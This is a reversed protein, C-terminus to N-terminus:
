GTSPTTQPVTALPPGEVTVLNARRRPVCFLALSLLLCLPLATNLPPDALMLLYPIPTLILAMTIRLPRASDRILAFAPLLVVADAMGSHFSTLLGCILCAALVFEFSEGTWAIWLCSLTVAAILAWELSQAAGLAATMGHLNPMLMVAPNIEPQRLADVYRRLSDPGAVILGLVALGAGGCIGGYLIRWRRKAILALPLFVFLHVKIACLSLVLGAGFDRKRRALLVAAGVFLLLLPTDQGGCIALVLPVSVAAYFTLEPCDKRFRAVFWVAASLTAATFLVYAARYPLLALPRLLAAYFPPRIYVIGMKIGVLQDIFALNAQRSYLDPSGVLKAGAYLPAFDNQGKIARDRLVFAVSGLLALHLLIAIWLSAGRRM